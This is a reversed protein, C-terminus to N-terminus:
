TLPGIEETLEMSICKTDLELCGTGSNMLCKLAPFKITKEKIQVTIESPKVESKQPYDLKITTM